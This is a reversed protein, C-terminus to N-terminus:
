ENLIYVLSELFSVNRVWVGVRVMTDEMTDVGRSIKIDVGGGRGRGGNLPREGQYSVHTGM